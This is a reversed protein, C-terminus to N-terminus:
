QNRAQHLTRRSMPPTRAHEGTSGAFLPSRCCHSSRDIRPLKQVAHHEISRQHPWPSAGKVEETVVVGMAAAKEAESVAAATEGVAMEVVKAEAEMAGEVKAVELEAVAKAEVEMAAGMAGAVTEVAETEAAMEVATAEESARGAAM